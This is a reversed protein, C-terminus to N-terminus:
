SQIWSRVEEDPDVRVFFVASLRYFFVPPAM